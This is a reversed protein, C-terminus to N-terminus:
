PYVTCLQKLNMSIIYIYICLQFHRFSRDAEANKVPYM